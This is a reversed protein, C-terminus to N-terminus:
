EFLRRAPFRLAPHFDTADVEDEMGFIRVDKPSRYISLKQTEPNVRWVQQAGAAFYEETKCDLEAVRDETGIVEVALEIRESWWGAPLGKSRVLDASIVCADPGRVNGTPLLWGLDGFVTFQNRPLLERLVFPVQFSVFGHRTGPPGMREVEGDVLELRDDTAEAMTLFEDPTIAIKTDAM